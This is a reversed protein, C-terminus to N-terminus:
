RVVFLPQDYEVPQGNEVLIELIECAFDSEIENMLKMAEVICLVDGKGVKKGVEVFPEASPSPSRYFTGVFPSKVTKTGAAPAAVPEAGSAARSPQGVHEQKPFAPSGVVIQAPESARSSRFNLRIRDPGEQLEIESVDHKKALKILQEIRTNEM